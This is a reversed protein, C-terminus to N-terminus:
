RSAGLFFGPTPGLEPAPGEPAPEPDPMETPPAQFLPATEAPEPQRLRLEAAKERLRTIPMSNLSPNAQMDRVIVEKFLVGDLLFHTTGPFILNAEPAQLGGEIFFNSFEIRLVSARNGRDITTELLAPRYFDTDVRVRKHPAEQLEYWLVGKPSRHFTAQTPLVGWLQLGENWGAATTALFPMFPHLVDLLMFDRGPALSAVTAGAGEDHYFHVLQGQNDFTEVALLRDRIWYIDQRFSREPLEAPALESLASASVVTRGADFVVTRTNIVAVSVDPSRMLIRTYIESLPPEYAWLPTASSWLIVVVALM